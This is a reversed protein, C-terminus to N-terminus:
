CKDVPYHNIQHIADDLRQFIKGKYNVYQACETICIFSHQLSSIQYPKGVQYM